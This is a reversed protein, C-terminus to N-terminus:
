KDREEKLIQNGEKEAQSLAKEASINGNMFKEFQPKMALGEVDAYGAVTPRIKAYKMTNVFVSYNPDKTFYEDEAAIKNAPLWGSIKAFEVGNEPKTTWWKMFDWAGDKHEAQKPMVLGFGGMIAGKDGNPGKPPEVVGYDLDEVKNYDALAWSGNYTMAEKGAAFADSGDDFGRQYVKLDNQMKDWYNLVELGQESNFATEKNDSTVLEGGAQMLYLNFLGVDQLSMGAQTMKNGDWKTTKQAATALEDWTTPPKVGAEQLLKKNYFLIRNDNLLPLGYLKDSYTMEKVSEEYFDDMKVNDEKVLKDLPELVGKPAYLATQYRDWMIIDPLEGGAIGTLLKEEVNEQMVYKVKYKDQSKNYSDIQKELQKIQDGSWSGWMVIEEKGDKDKSSDSSGGCAALSLLLVMSLIALLVKKM